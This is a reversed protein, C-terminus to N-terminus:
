TTAESIRNVERAGDVEHQVSRCLDRIRDTIDEGQMADAAKQARLSSVQLWLTRLMEMYRARRHGLEASQRSLRRLMELQSEYLRRM